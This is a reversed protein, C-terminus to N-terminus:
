EERVLFRKTFMKDELGIDFEAFTPIIATSHKKDHDTMVMVGAIWKGGMKKFKKRKETKHKEGKEDRYEIKTAAFHNTKDITVTLEPWAKDLGTKQVLKLKAMSADEEVLSPDYDEHLEHTAMEDTSYDMGFMTQKKAHSAVRRVKNFEPEYVYITDKDKALVAMGAIDAPEQMVVLRKVGKEWMEYRIGSKNGDKDKLVTELKMHCDSYDYHFADSEVLIEFASMTGPETGDAGGARTGVIAPLVVLIAAVLALAIVPKKM